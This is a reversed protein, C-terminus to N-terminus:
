RKDRSCWFFFITLPIIALMIIMIATLDDMTFDNPISLFTELSYYVSIHLSLIWAGYLLATVLLVLLKIKLTM